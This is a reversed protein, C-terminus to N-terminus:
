KIFRKESYNLLLKLNFRFNKLFSEIEILYNEVKVYEFLKNYFLKGKKTM